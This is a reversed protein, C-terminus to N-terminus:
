GTCAARPSTSSRCVRQSACPCATGTSTWCAPLSSSTSATSRSHGRLSGYTLPPLHGASVVVADAGTVQLAGTIRELAHAYLRDLDLVTNEGLGNAVAGVIVGEQAPASRFASILAQVQFQDGVALLRPGSRTGSLARGTLRRHLARLGRASVFLLPLLGLLLDRGVHTGLMYSATATVLLLGLAAHLM